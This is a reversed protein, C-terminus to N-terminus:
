VEKGDSEKNENQRKEESLVDDFLNEISKRDFKNLECSYLQTSVSKYNRNLYFVKVCGKGAEDPSIIFISEKGRIAEIGNNTLRISTDKPDYLDDVTVSLADALRKMQSASLEGEGRIIRSIAHYKWKNKPFLLEAVGSKELGFKDIIKQLNITDM